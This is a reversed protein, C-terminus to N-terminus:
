FLVQDSLTSTKSIKIFMITKASHANVDAKM